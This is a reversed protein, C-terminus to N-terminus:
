RWTCHHTMPMELLVTVSGTKVFVRKGGALAVERCPTPEPKPDEASQAAAASSSGGCATAIGHACEMSSIRSIGVGVVAVISCVFVIQFVLLHERVADHAMWFFEKV